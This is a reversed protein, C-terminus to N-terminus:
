QRGYRQMIIRALRQQSGKECQRFIGVLMAYATAETDSALTEPIVWKTSNKLAEIQDDM